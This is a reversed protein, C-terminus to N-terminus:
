RHIIQSHYQCNNGGCILCRNQDRLKNLEDLQYLQIEWNLMADPNSFVEVKSYGGDEYKKNYEFPWHSKQEHFERRTKELESETVERGDPLFYRASEM